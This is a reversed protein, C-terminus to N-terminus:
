KSKLWKTLEEESIVGNEFDKVKNRAVKKWEDFNQKVVEDGSRKAYMLKKQYTKRYLKLCANDAQKKKYSIQIGIDKCIEDNEAYTIRCYTGPSKYYSIFYKSCNKCIGISVALNTAIEYLSLYVLNSLCKSNYIPSEYLAITGNNVMEKVKLPSIDKTIIDNTKYAYNINFHMNVNAMYKFLNKSISYSIFKTHYPSNTYDDSGKLNYTYNICLRILNQFEKLKKKCAYFIDEYTNKFDQESGFTRIDPINDSFEELLKIGYFCFFTFYASEFTSLDANLFNILFMGYNEEFPSILDSSAYYIDDKNDFHNSYGKILKISNYKNDTDKVFKIKCMPLQTIYYEKKHKKDFWIYFGNKISFNPEKLM